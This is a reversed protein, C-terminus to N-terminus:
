HEFIFMVITYRGLEKSYTVEMAIHPPPNVPKVIDPDEKEELMFILKKYNSLGPYFNDSLSLTYGHATLCTNLINKYHENLCKILPLKISIPRM